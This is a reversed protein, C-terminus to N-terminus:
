DKKGLSGMLVPNDMQEKKEQLDQLDLLEM